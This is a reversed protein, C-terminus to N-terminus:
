RSRRSGNHRIKHSGAGEAKGSAQLPDHVRGVPEQRRAGPQRKPGSRRLGQLADQRGQGSVPQASEPLKGQVRQKGVM